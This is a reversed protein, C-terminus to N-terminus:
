LCDKEMAEAEAEISAFLPLFRTKVQALYFRQEKVRLVIEEAM